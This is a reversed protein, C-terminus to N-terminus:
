KLTTVGGVTEESLGLSFPNRKPFVQSRHDDVGIEIEPPRRSITADQKSSAPYASNVSLQISTQAPDQDAMFLLNELCSLEHQKLFHEVKVRDIEAIIEERTRIQTLRELQRAIIGDLHASMGEGGAARALSTSSPASYIKNSSFLSRIRDVINAESQRLTLTQDLEFGALLRYIIQNEFTWLIRLLVLVMALSRLFDRLLPDLKALGLVIAM